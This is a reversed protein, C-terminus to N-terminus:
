KSALACSSRALDKEISARQYDEPVEAWVVILGKNESTEVQWGDNITGAEPDATLQTLLDPAKRVSIQFNDVGAQRSNVSYVSQGRASYITLTWLTSPMLADFVLRGGSLDFPCFAYAADGARYGLVREAEGTAVVLANMGKSAAAVEIRGAMEARPRVLVLGVHVLGAIFATVIVWYVFRMM